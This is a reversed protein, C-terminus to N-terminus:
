LEIDHKKRCGSQAHRGQGGVATCRPCQQPLCQCQFTEANPGAFSSLLLLVDQQVYGSSNCICSHVFVMHERFTHV